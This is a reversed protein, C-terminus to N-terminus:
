KEKDRTHLNECAKDGSSAARLLSAVVVGLICGLSCAAFLCGIFAPVSINM